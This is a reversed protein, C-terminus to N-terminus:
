RSLNEFSYLVLTSNNRSINQVRLVSKFGNIKWSVTQSGLWELKFHNQQYQPVPTNVARLINNLIDANLDTKYTNSRRTLKQSLNKGKNMQTFVLVYMWCIWINSITSFPTPIMHCRKPRWNPSKSWRKKASPFVQILVIGVITINFFLYNAQPSQYYSCHKSETSKLIWFNLVVFLHSKTTLCQFHWYYKYM